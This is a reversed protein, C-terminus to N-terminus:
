KDSLDECNEKVGFFYGIIFLLYYIISYYYGFTLIMGSYDQFVFSFLVIFVLINSLGKMGSLVKTTGRVYYKLVFIKILFGLLAGIVIFYTFGRDFSFIFSIGLFYLLYFMNFWLNHYFLNKSKSM